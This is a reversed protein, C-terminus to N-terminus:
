HAVAEGEGEELGLGEDPLWEPWDAAWKPVRVDRVRDCSPFYAKLDLVPTGDFADISVIEVEGTGHDVSLIEVEAPAEGREAPSDDQQRLEADEMLVAGGDLLRFVAIPM